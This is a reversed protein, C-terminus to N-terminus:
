KMPGVNGGEPNSHVHGDVTIGNISYSGVQVIDGVLTMTSGTGGFINVGNNLSTAGEVTLTKTVRTDGDLVIEPAKVTAKTQTEAVIDGDKSITIKSSGAIIEASGDSLTVRMSRDANRLELVDPVFGPIAKPIPQYGVKAVASLHSFLRGFAPAPKGNFLGAESKNENLWHDIGRQAFHIYCPTGDPVPHTLSWGGGQVFNVPVHKLPKKKQLQYADKMGVFLTEIAIQVDATQSLPDFNYLHGPYGTNIDPAKQNNSHSAM